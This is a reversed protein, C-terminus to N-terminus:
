CYELQMNIGVGFILQAVWIKSALTLTMIIALCFFRITLLGGLQGGEPLIRCPGVKLCNALGFAASFISSYWTM